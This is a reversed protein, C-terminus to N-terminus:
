DSCLVRQHSFETAALEVYEGEHLQVAATAELEVYEGGHLQVAAASASAAKLQGALHSVHQEPSRQSLVWAGLVSCLRRYRHLAPHDWLDTELVKETMLQDTWLLICKLPRSQAWSLLPLPRCLLRLRSVELSRLPPGAMLLVSFIARELSPHGAEMHQLLTTNGTGYLVPSM